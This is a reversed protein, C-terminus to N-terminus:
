GSCHIGSPNAIIVDAKAGAVEIYGKLQSPRTANVENLIVKAEGGALYPNAQVWGAQETQVNKRSNNLIAGRSDVDFQQYKNHSLGKENPTQINVQPLGNATQLVIPQQHSPAASDARIQLNEAYLPKFVILLLLKSLILRYRYKNM